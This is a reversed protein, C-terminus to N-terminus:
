PLAATTPPDDDLQGGRANPARRARFSLM